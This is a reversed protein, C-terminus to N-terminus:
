QGFVSPPCKYANGTYTVNTEQESSSGFGSNMDMSGSGTVGARDTIMQIYNAGLQSAQNKMDNIAGQELNKNSTFGGTFFNGQNGIVQGLYKCGQPVSPNPSVMISAAQPTLPTSQCGVLLLASAALFVLKKM